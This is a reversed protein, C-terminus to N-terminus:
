ESKEYLHERGSNLCYVIFAEAQEVQHIVKDRVLIHKTYDPVTEVQGRRIRQYWEETWQRHFNFLQEDTYQVQEPPDANREELEHSLRKREVLYPVLVEDILSLNMAKGWDKVATGYNRFAYEVEDINMQPYSEILKKQFQDILITLLDAEPIIWGTIVHIKMLLSKGWLSLEEANM